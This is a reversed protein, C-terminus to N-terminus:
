FNFKLGLQAIRPQHASLVTGCTSGDNVSTDVGAYSTRPARREEPNAQFEWM